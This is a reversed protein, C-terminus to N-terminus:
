YGFKGAARLQASLSDGTNKSITNLRNEIAELRVLQDTNNATRYTNAEIRQAMDLNARAIQFMDAMNMSMPKLLGEINVLSLRMGNFGGAIISGTEETLSAKISGQLSTAAGDVSKFFDESGKLGDNFLKGADKIQDKWKNFDFGVISNNNEKAYKTLEDTFDKVVPDLIKLKLSNKIANSIFSNFVDDMKNIGAEGAKFADAFADALSNSLDRFTTQILSQSIAKNIDEIKGPIADIQSQYEDIKGQDSKKKSREADRMQILKAQQLKLNEIEDASKTYYTEGVANNVDRELQTYARGLDALQQKYGNIQKELKKDKTNFLSIASTLLGISGTIIDVPNGNSIGKGIKAFGDIAGMVGKLVRQLEEGGIGLESLSGALSSIIEDVDNLGKSMAGAMEEFATRVKETSETSAGPFDKLAQKWLKIKELIEKFNNSKNLKSIALDIDGTLKGYQEATLKVIKGNVLVGETYEKRYGEKMAELKRIIQQRTMEDYNMMLEAYGSRAFANAEAETRIKENRQKNLQAIQEDTANEGLAWRRRSYEDDIQALKQTYTLAAQYADDYRKRQMSLDDNKAKPLTDKNILDRLKNAGVSTDSAEPLLSKVYDVYSKYGKLDQAFRKDAEDQGFQTKYQEYDSFLQKQAEIQKKTYEVAQNALVLDTDRKQDANLQGQVQSKSVNQGNIVVPRNRNDKNSYFKEVEIRMKDYKDKVSDLEANDSEKQNRLSEKHLDTIKQGVAIARQLATNEANANRIADTDKGGNALKLEKKLEILQKVYDKYEKSAVDLPKKLEMIRKIDAKIVDITRTVPTEENSGDGIITADQIPKKEVKEYYDLVEQQAKTLTQGFQRLIKIAEYSRQSLRTIRDNRDQVAEKERDGGYLFDYIKNYLSSTKVGAGALRKAEPLQAQSDAYQTRAAQIASRNQLELLERQAKTLDNVKGRNIDLANGYDDFKTTVSPLLAGIKATVDRLEEQKEANLKGSNKLADYKKLLPNLASELEEARHKNDTYATALKEAETRNDTFSNLLEALRRSTTSSTFINSIKNGIKDFSAALSNNALEFNHNSSTGAEYAGNILKTSNFLTDQAESLAIVTNKVKGATLSLTKLRDGMETTTPNGARLGRFFLELASKADTNILQTFKEITLTSDALQAIAFYKERKTTLDSLFRTVGTAATSAQVGAKSLVSGYALLTPLSLKVVQAISATGLAFDQLYQVPAGGNHSLELFASGTKRMADQLSIGERQTIKYVSIVKGLSTAVAEAGGPFEKKLVVSLEDVEKIFGVLDQKAVGLRGGIFGIDLLGELSTRTDIGKLKKILEDVEDNSLKATRQVDTFSDSIEVNTHLISKGANIAAYLSVFGAATSLLEEKLSTFAGGYQNVNNRGRGTALELEKVQDTIGKIITALRSGAATNREAASLQDYVQILRILAARRQEISGKANLMERASNKLEATAQQQRLKEEALMQALQRKTLTVNKTAEAQANANSIASANGTNLTGQAIAQKALETNLRERAAKEANIASEMRVTSALFKAQAELDTKFDRPQSTKKGNDAANQKQLAALEKAAINAQQQELKNRVIQNNIAERALREQKLADQFALSATKEAAAQEQKAKALDAMEQKIKLIGAQYESLPKASFAASNNAPSAGQGASATRIDNLAKILELANKKAETIDFNAKLNLGTGGSVRGKAM